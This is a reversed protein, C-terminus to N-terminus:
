GAEKATIRGQNGSYRGHQSVVHRFPPVGFVGLIGDENTM